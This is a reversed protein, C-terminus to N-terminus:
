ARWLDWGWSLTTDALWATALRAHPAIDAPPASWSATLAHQRRRPSTAHQLWTLTMIPAVDAAGVGADAAARRIWSFLVPSLEAEGRFLRLMAATQDRVARRGSIITLADALFYALDALALGPRRASEWDVVTFGRSHAVINWTGLDGHVVVGPLRDVPLDPRGARGALSRLEAATAHDLRGLTARGVDLTWSAVADVLRLRATRSQHGGLVDCLRRGPAASEVSAPFGGIVVRGLLTPAHAAVGPGAAAVLALGEQDRDFAGTQGPVRGLKVALRPLREGTDYGLLVLRQLDDGRGRVVLWGTPDPAPAAAQFPWPSRGGLLDAITLCSAAPLLGSRAAIGAASAAARRDWSAPDLGFLQRLPGRDLTAVALPNGAHPWALARRVAYGQRRLEHVPARGTLVLSAPRDALAARWSGADSICLDAAHDVVRWGMAEAAARAIAARGLLRVAKPAAGALFALDAARRSPLGLSVVANVAAAGDM